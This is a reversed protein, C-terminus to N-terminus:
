ICACSASSSIDTQIAADPFYWPHHVIHFYLWFLYCLYIKPMRAPRTVSQLSDRYLCFNGPFPSFLSIHTYRQKTQSGL